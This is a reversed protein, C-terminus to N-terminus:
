ELSLHSLGSEDETVSIAYEMSDKVDEVHTILFIQRFMSSLKALARMINAKRTLDQSGFIEDLVIFSFESGAQNAMLHSIALRLCLNALDKEGGSFRGLPFKEGQDYVFVEYNEDLEITSYKGDTLEELLSSAEKSLTPRIRGILHKRFNSLVEQLEGFNEKQATLKKIEAEKEKVEKIEKKLNNVAIQSVARNHKAEQLKLQAQHYIKQQEEFTKKVKLYEEQSFKLTKGDEEIQAIKKNLAQLEKETQKKAAQTQSLRNLDTQYKLAQDKKEELGKLKKKLLLHEKENYPKKALEKLSNKVEALEQNLKEEEEKVQKLQAIAVQQKERNGTLTKISEKTKAAGEELKDKILKLKAQKSKLEAIKARNTAIEEALHQKIKTAHAGLPRRCTPCKSKPGLSLIKEQNAQIKEQEETLFTIKAALHGQKEDIKHLDKELSALTEEQISLRAATQKLSAQVQRLSAQKQQNESLRKVLSNKRGTFDALRKQENKLNELEENQAKTQEYEKLAPELEKLEDKLEELRKEEASFEALRTKSNQINSKTLKYEEALTRHKEQKDEQTKFSSAVQNAEKAVEKGKKEEARYIQEKEKFAEKEEKLSDQLISIEPLTGRLTNLSVETDRLDTRLLELAKDINDIGLMRIILTKREAPRFDSLANLEKQKAFFSTFFAEREMGTLKVIYEYSPKAGRAVCTKDVWVAADSSLGKGRMERIIQFTSSAVELELVVQCIDKKSAGQRKVDEKTTRAASTGYLAWAIAEMLSSKGAGNPGVVGVLGDPFEVEEEQYKRYNKLALSKLRM